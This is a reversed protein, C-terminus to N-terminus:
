AIPKQNLRKLLKNVAERARKRPVSATLGGSEIRSEPGKGTLMSLVLFFDANVWTELTVRGKEHRIELFAPAMLPWRGKRYLRRSVESQLLRFGTEAAWVDVLPWLEANYNFERVTRRQM